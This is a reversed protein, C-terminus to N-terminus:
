DALSEKSFRILNIKKEFSMEFCTSLNCECSSHKELFSDNIWLIFREYPENADIVPKHIESSSILLVDWPKLKYAKGEILYTAKGSLFIVIKNFDHYHYEFQMVKKDKIHFYEFDGKLYGRKPELIIRNNKM